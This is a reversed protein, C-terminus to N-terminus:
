YNWIERSASTARAEDGNTRELSYWVYLSMTNLYVIM